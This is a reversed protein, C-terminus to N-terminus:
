SFNHSFRNTIQNKLIVLGGIIRDLMLIVLFLQFILTSLTFIVLYRKLIQFFLILNWDSKAPPDIYSQLTVEKITLLSKVYYVYM